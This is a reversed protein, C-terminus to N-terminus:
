LRPHALRSTLRDRHDQERQNSLERKAAVDKPDSSEAEFPAGCVALTGADIEAVYEDIKAWARQLEPLTLNLALEERAMWSEQGGNSQPDVCRTELSIWFYAEPLDCPGGIGNQYYRSLQAWCMRNGLMAGRLFYRRAMPQNTMGFYGKAFASALDFCASGDSRAASELLAYVAQPANTGFGGPKHGHNKILSALVRQANPDQCQVARKLWREGTASDDLGLDYHYYLRMAAQGDGLDAQQTCVAIQDSPLLLDVNGRIPRSPKPDTQCGAAFLVLPFLFATIWINRTPNM